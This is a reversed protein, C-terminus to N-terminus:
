VVPVRLGCVGRIRGLFLGISEASNPDVGMEVTSGDIRQIAVRRSARADGVPADDSELCTFGGPRLVAGRDKAALVVWGALNGTEALAVRRTSREMRVSPAALVTQIMGGALLLSGAVIAFIAFAGDDM